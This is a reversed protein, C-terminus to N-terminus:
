QLIPEADKLVKLADNFKGSLAHGHALSFMHRLQIELGIQQLQVIDSSPPAIGFTQSLVKLSKELRSEACKTTCTYNEMTVHATMADFRKMTMHIGLSYCLACKCTTPHKQRRHFKIFEKAPVRKEAKADQIHKMKLYVATQYPITNTSKIKFTEDEAEDQAKQGNKKADVRVDLIDSLIKMKSEIPRDFFLSVRLMREIHRLTFYLSFSAQSDSCAMTTMTIAEGVSGLDFLADCRECQTLLMPLTLDFCEWNTTLPHLSNVHDVCFKLNRVASDFIDTATRKGSEVIGWHRFARGHFYRNLGYIRFKDITALRVTKSLAEVEDSTPPSERRELKVWVRLMDHRYQLQFVDECYFQLGTQIDENVKDLVADALDVCRINVLAEAVRLRCDILASKPASSSKLILMLISLIRLHNSTDGNIALFAAVLKLDDLLNTM